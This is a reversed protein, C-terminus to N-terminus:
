GPLNLFEIAYADKFVDAAADGHTQAMTGTVETADYFAFRPRRVKHARPRAQADHLTRFVRLCAKKQSTFNALAPIQTRLVHAAPPCHRRPWAATAPTRVADVLTGDEPADATPSM